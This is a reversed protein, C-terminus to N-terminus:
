RPAGPPRLPLRLLAPTEPDAAIRQRGPLRVPAGVPEHGTRAPMLLDPHDSASLMLGVAGGPPVVAGVPPFELRLPAPSTTAATAARAISVVTGDADVLELHAVWDTPAPEALVTADLIAIGDLEAGDSWPATRWRRVAGPPADLARRDGAPPV